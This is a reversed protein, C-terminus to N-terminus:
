DEILTKRKAKLLGTGNKLTNLSMCQLIAEEKNKEFRELATCDQSFETFIKERNPKTAKWYPFSPTALPEHEEDQNKEVKKRETKELSKGFFDGPLKKSKSIRFLLSRQKKLISQNKM